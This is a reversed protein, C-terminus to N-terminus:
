REGFYIAAPFQTQDIAPGLARLENGPQAAYPVCTPGDLVFTTPVPDAIPRIQFPRMTGAFAIPECPHAPLETILAPTTCGATFFPGAAALNIPICRTTNRLARPACDIAHTTDHLRDDVVRLDSGFDADLVIHQLRHGDAPELSRGIAPLEVAAGVARLRLNGPPDVAICGTADRRYIPPAMDAGVTHYSACGTPEILSALSTAASVAVVPESCGPDHFYAAAAAGQPECVVSGDSRARAACGVGLTRDRLGAQVRVGDDSERVILAIRGDGLERDHLEVQTTGDLEDGLAFALTGSPVTTASCVDNVLAYAQAIVQLSAGARYVHAPAGGATAVFFGPKGGTRNIGAPMTCAADLFGVDDAVPVCRVAGDTWPRAACRTHLQLDYFENAVTQETGDEYRYRQLTLRTGSAATFVNDHPLNDGCAACAIVFPLWRTV